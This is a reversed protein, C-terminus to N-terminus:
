QEIPGGCSCSHYTYTWPLNEEMEALTRERRPSEMDNSPTPSTPRLVPSRVFFFSSPSFPPPPCPTIRLILVSFHSLFPFSFIHSGKRVGLGTRFEREKKKTNTGGGALSGWVFLRRSEVREISTRGRRMGTTNGGRLNPARNGCGGSVELSSQRPHGRVM